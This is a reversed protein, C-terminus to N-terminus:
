NSTPMKLHSSCVQPTSNQKFIDMNSTFKSRNRFQINESQNLSLLHDSNNHFIDIEAIIKVWILVQVNDSRLSGFIQVFDQNWNNKESTIKKIMARITCGEVFDVLCNFLTTSLLIWTLQWRWHNGNFKVDANRLLFINRNIRILFNKNTIYYRTM